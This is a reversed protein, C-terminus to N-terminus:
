NVFRMCKEHALKIPMDSKHIFKAFVNLIKKTITFCLPLGHWQAIDQSGELEFAFMASRECYKGLDLRFFLYVGDNM